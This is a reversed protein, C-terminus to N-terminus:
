HLFRLVCFVASAVVIMAYFWSHGLLLNYDLPVDVVEIDVLITKGKLTVVFYQLLGHPQFGRGDFVKLTTPSSILKPSGQSRWCPFPMVCNSAGEDLVIRHVNKGSVLVQIQFALHHSHREKSYELNFTILNSAEPDMAEISSLLTRRQSPFNQLVELASM